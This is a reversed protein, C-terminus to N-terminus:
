KTEEDKKVPAMMSVVLSKAKGFATMLEGRLTPSVLYFFGVTFVFTLM